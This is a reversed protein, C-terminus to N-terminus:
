YGIYHCHLIEISQQWTNPIEEEEEKMLRRNEKREGSREGPSAAVDEDDSLAHKMTM